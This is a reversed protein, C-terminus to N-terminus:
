KENRSHGRESFRKQCNQKPACKGRKKQKKKWEEDLTM